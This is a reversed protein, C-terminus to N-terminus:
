ETMRGEVLRQLLLDEFSSDSPVMAYGMGNSRCFSELSTAYSSLAERYAALVRESVSVERVAGSEADVLTLDGVISPALEERSLVQILNVDFGRQSLLKLEGKFNGPDMFDSIMFVIGPRLSSRQYSRIVASLDTLAGTRPATLEGDRPSADTSESHNEIDSLGELFTLVSHLHGRGRLARVREGIVADFTAVGVRDLSSVALFALAAAARRASDFKTM